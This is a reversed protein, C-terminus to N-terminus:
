FTWGTRLLFLTTKPKLGGPNDTQYFGRISDVAGYGDMFHCEAKLDWHHNLDVRATVSNDFIHNDPTGLPLRWDAYYRSHYAGLELNKTLRYAASLYFSRADAEVDRGLQYVIQDRWYRRYEGDLRWKGRQLQAYYQHMFQGRTRETVVTVPGFDAKGTISQTLYSAGITFGQIPTAWRLDAGGVTGAYSSLAV